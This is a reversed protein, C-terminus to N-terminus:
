ASNEMMAEGAAGTVVHQPTPADCQCMQLYGGSPLLEQAWGETLVTYGEQALGDGVGLVPPSPVLTCGLGQGCRQTGKYVTAQPPTHHTPPLLFPQCQAGWGEQSSITLFLCLVWRYM